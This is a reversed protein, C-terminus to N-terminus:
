YSPELEAMAMAAVLSPLFGRAPKAESPADAPLQQRLKDLAPVFGALVLFEACSLGDLAVEQEVREIELQDDHPLLSKAAEFSSAVRTAAAKDLSAWGRLREIVRRRRDDAPIDLEYHLSRLAELARHEEDLRSFQQYRSRLQKVPPVAESQLSAYSTTTMVPHVESETTSYKKGRM